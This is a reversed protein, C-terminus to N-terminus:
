KATKSTTSTKSSGNTSKTETATDDAEEDGEDADDSAAATTGGAAKRKAKAEETLKKVTALQEPTLVAEVEASQKDQLAQLQAKIEAIKPAFQQQISYIKERQQGNVVQSYYPPLRGRNPARTKTTKADSKDAAKADAKSNSKSSNQQALAISVVFPIIAASVVFPLRSLTKMYPDELLDVDVFLAVM